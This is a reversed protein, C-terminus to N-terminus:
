HYYACSKEGKDVKMDYLQRLRTFCEALMIELSHIMHDSRPYGTNNQMHLEALRKQLLEQKHLESQIRIEVTNM